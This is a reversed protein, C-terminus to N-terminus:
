SSLPLNLGILEQSAHSAVTTTVTLMVMIMDTRVLYIAMVGISVPNLSGRRKITKPYNRRVGIEVIIM